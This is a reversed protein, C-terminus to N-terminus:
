MYSNRTLTLNKLKAKTPLMVRCGLVSSDETKNKSSNEDNEMEEDSSLLNRKKRKFKSSNKYDSRSLESKEKTESSIKKSTEDESDSSDM